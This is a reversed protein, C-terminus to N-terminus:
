FCDHEFGDHVSTGVALVKGLMVHRVGDIPRYHAEFARGQSRSPPFAILWLPQGIRARDGFALENGGTEVPDVTFLLHSPNGAVSRVSHVSAESDRFRVQLQQRGLAGQLAERHQEDLAYCLFLTPTVLVCPLTFEDATVYGVPGAGRKRECLWWLGPVCPWRQRRARLEGSREKARGL